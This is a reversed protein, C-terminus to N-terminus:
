ITDNENDNALIMFFLYLLSLLSFFILKETVMIIKVEKLKIKLDLYTCQM